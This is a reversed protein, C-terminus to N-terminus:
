FRISLTAGLSTQSANPVLSLESARMRGITTLIVGAALVAGGSIGTSLAIKNARLGELNLQEGYAFEEANLVADPGRMQVEARLADLATHRQHGQIIFATMVGLAITALGIASGGVATMAVARRDRDLRSRPDQADDTSGSPPKSADPNSTMGAPSAPSPEPDIIPVANHGMNGIPCLADPDGYSAIM